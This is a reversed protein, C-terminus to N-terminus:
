ATPLHSPWQRSQAPQFTPNAYLYLSVVPRGRSVTPDTEEVRVRPLAPEDYLVLTGKHWLFPSPPHWSAIWLLCADGLPDQSVEAVIGDRRNLEAAAQQLGPVISGTALREWEGGAM